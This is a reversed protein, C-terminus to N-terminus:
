WDFKGLVADVQAKLDSRAGVDSRIDDVDVSSVARELDRRAMELQPDKTINLHTLLSCMDKVNSIFTSRFQKTQEGEPTTLKDSMTLLTSHLKDWTTKMADGVRDTYASEYQAKLEAMDADSATLRFDGAEPVPSFVLRFAFKSAVEEASPYDAVNFLDGLNQQAANVLRPYEAVFTAVKSNFYDRRSNVEQKYDLFMSTPLLRVGKDSWPLTRGNHWTRCLAAYDAIDKRVTTGAMLNKKFQGADATAKADTTTKATANHDTIAATWVSINMEVLMASSSISM